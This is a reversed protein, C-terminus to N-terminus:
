HTFLPKATIEMGVLATQMGPCTVADVLMYNGVQIITVTSGWEDCNGHFMFAAGGHAKAHWCRKFWNEPYKELPGEMILLKLFVELTLFECKVSEKLKTMKINRSTAAICM